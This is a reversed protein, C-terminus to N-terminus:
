PRSPLLGERMIWNTKGFGQASRRYGDTVIGGGCRRSNPPNAAVLPLPAPLGIRREVLSGLAVPVAAASGGPCREGNRRHRM